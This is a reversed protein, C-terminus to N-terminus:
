YRINKDAIDINYCDFKNETVLVFAISSELGNIDNQHYVKSLIFMLSYNM